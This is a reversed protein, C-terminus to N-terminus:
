INAIFPPIPPARYTSGPTAILHAIPLSGTVYGAHAAWPTGRGLASIGVIRRVSHRKFAEAAPGTFGVYAAEVSEARPDPPAVWFVADAGAFAADVVAPDGHSGEVVQVRERAIAPIGYPDRSIGRLAHGSDLLNELVQHGILGSPTTIVIM